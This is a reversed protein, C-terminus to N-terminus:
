INDITEKKLVFLLFLAIREAHFFHPYKEIFATTPKPEFTDIIVFNNKHFSHTYNSITRHYYNTKKGCLDKQEKPPSFYNYLHFYAYKNNIRGRVGRRFRGVPPTFCPHLISIILIGNKKLVRYSEKLVTDIDDMDMLVMNATAYDFYESSYPFSTNADHVSYEISPHSYNKKAIEIMKANDFAQVHANKQAAEFAFLGNGCGIDLVRKNKIDHLVDFITPYLLETRVKDQPSDVFQHYKEAAKSWLEQDSHM